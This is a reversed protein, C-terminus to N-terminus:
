EIAASVKCQPEAPPRAEPRRWGFFAWWVFGSWAGFTGGILAVISGARLTLTKIEHPDPNSIAIVQACLLTLAAGVAAGLAVHDRLYSRGLAHLSAIGPSAALLGIVVLPLGVIIALSGFVLALPLLIVAVTGLLRAVFTSVDRFLM